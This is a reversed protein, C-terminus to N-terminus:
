LEISNERAKKLLEDDSSGDDPYTAYGFELKVKDALNKKDLYDYAAQELRGEVILAGEKGCGVMIIIDESEKFIMDGAGRLGNRLVDELERLIHEKKEGSLDKSTETFVTIISMKIHDKMAEKIGKNISEKFVMERTYKPLTFIFRTGRGLQSEIWIKGNHLEVLSKAISLGLGTGKEGTGPIRGFQQFKNFVKPLDDGSIGIGSDAVTCEIENEKEIVSVEIYGKEVFKMANSMLNTFIQIVKGEDAYIEIQEKPLRVKLELGKDNAQKSFSFIIGSILENLNVSARKLELKGAEIKSIDLLSNIINTLRDINNKAITLFKEQKENLEGLTKDLVLSLGEKTISLPTRLEHSVISIFETKMRDVEKEKTIDRLVTLIGIPEGHENKVQTTECSLIVTEGQLNVSIEGSGEDKYLKNDEIKEKWEAASIQQEAFGLNLFQRARPNIVVVEGREDVMVVGETMGHVMSDMKYKEANIVAQLREIANSTQNTITYILRIDNEKFSNDTCNSINIMGVIKGRVIFPVNFFSRVKDSLRNKGPGTNSDLPVIFTNIRKKRIEKGTFLSVSDLLNNKIEDAFKVSGPYAPKITINATNEDFLLSACIDYNIVKFLAEMILKLLTQYDLTYSIANSVENSVEHLIALESTREEIKEELDKTFSELKKNAEGLEKSQEEIKEKEKGLDELISLIAERSQALDKTREEIKKELNDSFEKIESKSKELNDILALTQRMDRAIGVIGTIRIDRNATLTKNSSEHNVFSSGQSEYMVSGSFSVPIKKGGKSVFSISLDRVSGAEILKRLGAKSFISNQEEELFMGIERGILEEEKYELLDCTSRNVKQILGDPTIVILTDTMSSIIGDLYSKGGLIEKQKEKIKLVMHSFSDALHGMEDNTAIEIKTDLKDKAIEAMANELKKIPLSISRSLFISGLLSITFLIIVSIIIIIKVNLSLNVQNTLDYKTILNQYYIAIGGIIGVLLSIGIFGITLKHGIKM